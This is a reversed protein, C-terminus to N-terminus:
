RFLAMQHLAKRPELTGHNASDVRTLVEQLTTDTHRPDKISRHGSKLPCEFCDGRHIPYGKLFLLWFVYNFAITEDM